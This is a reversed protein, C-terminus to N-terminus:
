DLKEQVGKLNGAFQDTYMMMGLMDNGRYWEPNQERERDIQKLRSDRERYFTEMRSCLEAFAEPADYLEMYLWKMEDLHRSMRAQYVAEDKSGNKM